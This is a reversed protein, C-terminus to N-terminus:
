VNVYVCWVGVFVCLYVVVCMWMCVVYGCVGLVCGCWVCLSCVHVVCVGVWMCVVCVDVGGVCLCLWGCVGASVGVGVWLCGGFVGWMRCVRVSVCM